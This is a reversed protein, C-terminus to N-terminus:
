PSTPTDRGSSLAEKGRAEGPGTHTGEDQVAQFSTSPLTGEESRYNSKAPKRLAGGHQTGMLFHATYVPHSSRAPRWPASARLVPAEGAHLHLM